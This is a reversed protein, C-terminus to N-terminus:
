EMMGVWGLIELAMAVRMKDVGGGPGSFPIEEYGGAAAALAMGNLVHRLRSESAFVTHAQKMLFVRIKQGSIETQDLKRGGGVYEGPLSLYAFPTGTGPVTLNSRDLVGHHLNLLRMKWELDKDNHPLRFVVYVNRRHPRQGAPMDSREVPEFDLFVGGLIVGSEKMVTAIVNPVRPVWFVVRNKAQDFHVERASPIIDVIRHMHPLLNKLPAGSTKIYFHVCTSPSPVPSPMAPAPATTAAAAAAAAAAPAATVPTTAAPASATVAPVNDAAKEAPDVSQKTASSWSRSASRSRDRRRKTARGPSPSRSRSRDRHRRTRSRSRSRSRRSRRRSKRPSPSRKRPEDRRRDSWRPEDDRDRDRDRRRKKDRSRSTSRTRSESRSRSPSRPRSRSRTPSPTRSLSRSRSKISIVDRHSPAPLALAPSLENPLLSSPTPLAPLAPSPSLVLVPATSSAPAALFTTSPTPISSSPTPLVPFATTSSPRTLHASSSTPHYPYASSSTSHASPVPSATPQVPVALSSAPLAPHASSSSPLVSHVSSLASPAPSASPPAPVSAATFFTAPLAPTANLGYRTALDRHWQSASTVLAPTIGARRVLDALYPTVSLLNQFLPHPSAVLVEVLSLAKGAGPALVVPECVQVTPAQSASTRTRLAFLITAEDDDPPAVAAAPVPTATAAATPPWQGVVGTSANPPPPWIPPASLAPAATPAWSPAAAYPAAFQAYMPRAATSSPTGTASNAALASMVHQRQYLDLSSTSGQQKGAAATAPAALIASASGPHQWQYGAYPNSAPAQATSTASPWATTPAAAANASASTAPVRWALTPPDM